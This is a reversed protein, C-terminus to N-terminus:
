IGDEEVVTSTSTEEAMETALCTIGRHGCELALNRFEVLSLTDQELLMEAAMQMNTGTVVEIDERELSLLSAIRFPTGGLLDTLFVIGDGTDIEDMTQRMAVDLQPTTMQEPFDIFRFQPQEGIVQHVAQAMGSAFAGHGSLIVALM